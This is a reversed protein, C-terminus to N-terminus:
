IHQFFEPLVVNILLWPDIDDSM